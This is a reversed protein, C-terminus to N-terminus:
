EDEDVVEGDVEESDPPEVVDADPPNEELESVDVGLVEALRAKLAEDLEKGSLKALDRESERNVSDVYATADMLLRMADLKSKDNSTSSRIIKMAEAAIIPANERGTEALVEQVSAKQRRISAAKALAGQRRQETTSFRGEEMLRLALQRKEEKREPSWGAKGFGTEAGDPLDSRDIETSM